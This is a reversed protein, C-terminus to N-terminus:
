LGGRMGPQKPPTFMSIDLPLNARRIDEIFTPVAGTPEFHGLLRGDESWGDQKFTFLDQMTIVDGEMKTIESVCVVKRSGDKERNIQVIISIASAIQERIARLPLDFGAMLVLTELRALADRPSNAHITTLSGDHGTNMAQLMDLAEGGRCEGIVIRDPRMRLSNRVLDRITVEGKGEINAPRSELRVLHEQRLQLEAADEITIIREKAPLYGSLINLLTTKGSGTGGSILINKRIKVCVDLFHAIEATISGYSILNEVTLPTKAFKRITISPGVLSLPPIIANVRSGDKLRADVMPSSEDIRRGLPSVIRDIAALVQHDDAFATDTKYLVGKHEVYVNDPGNVMIETIDDRAILDELPGLGIAEHELENEIKEQTVGEPLPISLENLIEHITTRAKEELDNESVSNLALRKMNLRALLESHAQKKIEQVLPRASMPIGSVALIRSQYQREPDAPAAPPQPPASMTQFPKTETRAAGGVLIHVSGIEIDSDAPVDVFERGVRQGNLYTGNSSGLDAIRLASEQAQLVCHIKSVGVFPLQIPVADSSGVQYQGPPISLPSDPQGPMKLIVEVM